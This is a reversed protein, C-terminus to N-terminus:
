QYQYSDSVTPSFFGTKSHIPHSLSAFPQISIAGTRVWLHRRSPPDGWYNPLSSIWRKDIQKKFSWTQNSGATDKGITVCENKQHKGSLSLNMMRHPLKRAHHHRLWINQISSRNSNQAAGSMPYFRSVPSTTAMKNKIWFPHISKRPGISKWTSRKPLPRRTKWSDGRGPPGPFCPKVIKHMYNM